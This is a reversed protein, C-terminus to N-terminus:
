GLVGLSAITYLRLQANRQYQTDFIEFRVFFRIDVITAFFYTGM